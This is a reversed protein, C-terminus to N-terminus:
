IRDIAGGIRGLAETLRKQDQAFCIRIYKDNFKDGRAGFAAGPAVGVRANILLDKAFKVSDTLGEVEIFAYFAGEPKAWSLRNHSRVFEDVIDRGKKCRAVMEAIFPDGDELAAIAGYQAFTASGTNNVVCLEAIEHYLSKPAILWGIRWGTMAWAKSFSNVIFVNDDDTAIQAFTPAHKADYVLPGYVEDAVIALGRQRCGNLLAKQEEHSMVWGSPNGPSNVYIAKTRADCAAFVKDLNLHWRSDHPHRDLTVLRPEGGAVRAAQFIPPWVPAVVVINDGTDLLCELSLMVAMMASGPISIRQLDITAGTFRKTYDAVAQRLRPIGNPFTYFTQGEDLARKAADRIFAPTVLDTEGFWLPLIDKQGLGLRAM